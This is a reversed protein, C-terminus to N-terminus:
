RPAEATVQWRAHRSRLRPGFAVEARRLDLLRWGKLLDRIEDEEFYHQPLGKEAGEKLTFTNRGVRTGRGYALDNRAALTLFFLAGPRSVRLVEAAARRADDMTMHDLVGHSVTADFRRAPWPLAFVSGVRLDGRLGDHAFWSKALAIASPAIDVGAVAYGSRAFFHANSGNGCGLDLVRRAPRRVAWRAIGERRKLWRAAFVVISEQPEWMTMGAKYAQHWLRGQKDKTLM